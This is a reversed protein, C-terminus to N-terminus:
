PLAGFDKTFCIVNPCNEKLPQNRFWNMPSSNDVVPNERVSLSPFSHVLLKRRPPGLVALGQPQRAQDRGHFPQRTGFPPGTRYIGELKNCHPRVECPRCRSM